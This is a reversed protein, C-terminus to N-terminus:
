SWFEDGAAPDEPFNWFETLQGDAVHMIHTSRSELRQGGRSATVKVLAVVHDDNALIDHIDM